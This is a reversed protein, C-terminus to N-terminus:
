MRWRLGLDATMGYDAESSPFQSGQILVVDHRSNINNLNFFAQLGFWPLEQKVSLDWRVYSSTNQNLDPWFNQTSFIDATYLMSVRASFGMYDYGISVNAIDNPQNVLRSTFFTDVVTKSFVPFYTTYVNTQPYKAESFVHTYNVNLVLGKFPDPLYWFHTQWDFEFGWVDVRNPNNIYTNIFLNAHSPGLGEFESPDIIVRNNAAFILDDIRKLFAGATFLGLNNEYFSMYLDFNQSRAPKLGVNHWTVTSLGIDIKPTIAIFDPYTLTQTYAFRVDFWDLPKYRLHVMPLWFDHARGLTTDRHPYNYRVGTVASVGRPATYETALREYRVGPIFKIQPGINMDAMVYGASGDETGDYDSANSSLSNYAYAELTGHARVVDLVQWMLDIDIPTGFTYEGDFFSSYKYDPDAFLTIPMNASGTIGPIRDKM